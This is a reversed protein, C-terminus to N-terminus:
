ITLEQEQKLKMGSIFVETVGFAILATFLYSEFFAIKLIAGVGKITSITGNNVVALVFILNFFILIGAFYLLYKAMKKIQDAQYAQFIEEKLIAKVMNRLFLLIAGYIIRVAFAKFINFYAFTLTVWKADRFKSNALHSPLKAYNEVGTLAYFTSLILSVVIFVLAINIMKILLTLRSSNIEM